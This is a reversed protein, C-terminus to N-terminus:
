QFLRPALDILDRHWVPWVHMGPTDFGVPSFGHRALTAALAHANTLGDGENTGSGIWLLRVNKAGDYDGRGAAALVFDSAGSMCGVFSFLEPHRLGIRISQDGGMSLGALARGKGERSVHYAAEAQPMVETLLAQVFLEDNKDVHSDYDKLITMDGYGFPMVVVMPKAKRAAILSDLIREAHGLTIWSEADSGYGHLLYLVPYPQAASPDYGPPTYVCFESHNGALGQVVHTTYHHQHVIGHPIDQEDWPEPTSSPVTVFSDLYVLNPRVDPNAPDLGPRGDISFSYWYTEPAMPPTTVSWVGDKKSLPLPDAINAVSVLVEKAGADAYRFTIRGDASVEPSKVADAGQCLPAMLALALAALIPRSRIM